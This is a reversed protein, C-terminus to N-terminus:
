YHCTACDDSANNQRHCTICTGMTHKVLPQATIANPMDGHCTACPVKHRAHPGHRFKVAAAKEFGYVRQWPIERGSAAIAALKKIEPKDTAVKAHCLMCKRVGPITAADRTDASIHCDICKLHVKNIHTSHPFLIPQEARVAPVSITVALLLLFHLKM